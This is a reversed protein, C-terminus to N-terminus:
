IRTTDRAVSDSKHFMYLIKGASEGIHGVVGGLFKYRYRLFFWFYFTIMIRSSDPHVGAYFRTLGFRESHFQGDRSPSFMWRTHWASKSNRSKLEEAM